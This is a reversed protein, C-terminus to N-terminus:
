KLLPKLWIEVSKLLKKAPQSVLAALLPDCEAMREDIPILFSDIMAVDLDIRTEPTKNIRAITADSNM